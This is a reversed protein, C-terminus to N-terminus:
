ARQAHGDSFGSRRRCGAADVAVVEALQARMPAGNVAAVMPLPPPNHTAAEVVAMEEASRMSSDLQDRTCNESTPRVINKVSSASGSTPRNVSRKPTRGIANAPASSRGNHKRIWLALVPRKEINTASAAITSAVLLVMEGVTQHRNIASRKVRERPSAGNMTM